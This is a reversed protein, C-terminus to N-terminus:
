RDGTAWAFQAAACETHITMFRDVDDKNVFPNAEGPRRARVADLKQLTNDYEAHIHIITDVGAKDELEKFRISSAIYTTSMTQMDPFMQVGEQVLRMFDGGVMGAMHRQNGDKLPFILSLNGPTSTPTSYLTISTDGLTLKQGDKAVIDKTPKLSAPTNDGALLDWDIESMIVRASPVITKVANIGWSQDSHSRVVVVYRITAPDLGFTKLEELLAPTVWPFNTNLLVIGASTTLAWTSETQTGIYYLNDFVRVPPVYWQDRPTPVLKAKEDPEGPGVAPPRAGPKPQTCVLSFLADYAQWPKPNATAPLVAAKAAAVHLQAPSAQDDANLAVCSVLLVTCLVAERYRKM